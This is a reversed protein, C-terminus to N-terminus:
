SILESTANSCPTARVLNFILYGRAALSRPARKLRPGRFFRLLVRSMRAERFSGSADTRQDNRPAVPARFLMGFSERRSGFFPIM